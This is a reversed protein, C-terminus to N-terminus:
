SPVQGIRQKWCNWQACWNVRPRWRNRWSIPGVPTRLFRRNKQRLLKVQELFHSNFASGPVGLSPFEALAKAQWQPM